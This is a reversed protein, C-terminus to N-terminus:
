DNFQVPIRPPQGILDYAYRRDFEYYGGVVLLCILLWLMSVKVRKYHFLAEFLCISLMLLAGLDVLHNYTSHYWDFIVNQPAVDWHFICYSLGIFPEIMFFGDYDDFYDM